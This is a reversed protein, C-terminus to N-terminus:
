AGGGAPRGTLAHLNWTSTGSHLTPHPAWQHHNPPPPAIRPGPACHRGPTPPAPTPGHRPPPTPDRHRARQRKAAASRSPRGPVRAAQEPPTSPPRPSINQQIAKRRRAHPASGRHGACRGMAAAAIAAPTPASGACCRRSHGRDPGGPGCSPTPSEVPVQAATYAPNCCGGCGGGCCCCGGGRRQRRLMRGGSKAGKLTRRQFSSDGGPSVGM